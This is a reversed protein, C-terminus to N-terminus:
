FGTGFSSRKHASEKELLATVAERARYGVGRWLRDAIALLGRVNDAFRHLV